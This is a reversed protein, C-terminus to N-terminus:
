KTWTLKFSLEAELEDDSHKVKYELADEPVQVAQGEVVLSGEAIRDALGRLADVVDQRSGYGEEQWKV